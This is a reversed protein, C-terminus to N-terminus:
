TPLVRRLAAILGNLSHPRAVEAVELGVHEAVKATSPGICVIPGLRGRGDPVAAALRQAASGSLLTTAQVPLAARLHQVHRDPPVNTYAVVDVVEAGAHALAAHTAPNALDGRPYAVKQGSLDGLAEVLDEATSRPPVPEAEIDLTQLRAATAPGVAAWRATRWAHPAATAIVDVATGSTVLVWDVEPHGGAAEIMAEVHWRREILPVVVPQYGARGLATALAPADEAPRTVLVRPLADEVMWSM